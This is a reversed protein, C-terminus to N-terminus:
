VSLVHEISGKLSEDYYGFMSLKKDCRGPDNKCTEPDGTCGDLGSECEISEIIVDRVSKDDNNSNDNNSM